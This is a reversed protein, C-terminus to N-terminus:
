KSLFLVPAGEFRSVTTSCGVLSLSGFDSRSRFQGFIEFSMMMVAHLVATRLWHILIISLVLCSGGLRRFRM